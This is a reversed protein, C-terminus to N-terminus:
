QETIYFRDEPCTTDIIEEMQRVGSHSAGIAMNKGRFITPTEVKLGNRLILSREDAERKVVPLVRLIENVHRLNETTRLINRLSEVSRKIEIDAEKDDFHSVDCVETASVVGALFM